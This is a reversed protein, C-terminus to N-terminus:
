LGSELQKINGLRFAPTVSAEIIRAKRGPFMYVVLNARDFFTQISDSIQSLKNYVRNTNNSFFM